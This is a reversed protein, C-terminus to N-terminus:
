SEETEAAEPAAPSATQDVTEVAPEPEDLAVDEFEVSKLIHDLAKRELIQTAIADGLGEKEVRARVRRVSEDSRAAMAELEVDVDEEEVKIEASDAIRALIFFEKLSRLTMEHANARVEAERAKIDNDSFGEQRLEGILRNITSKEQRSVLDPPLDFPTAAILADLVQRRIALKQQSEYRRKLAERVADRLEDPSDFGISALFEPNAEPMRLQKLDHVQVKVAVTQGRLAPDAVASGLRAEVERADGPSVGELAAGIGPIHGDQFRLEPQLRFQIEKVENLVSHDPRLFTLDATLYDGIKASGELKPVIQAYRELFRQLHADVDPERIAKIPRKVKLGGFEAVEFDPRVEVDMEFALPGDDPLVIAELDLKPQTIPNLNYDEDIQQLSAMLLSSKVQDSVQKRFRKVVLQRPARGPRFGPVQADRQFTGLSEEFQIEIESRPINVKLHKKCPGADQIQVDIALKRKPEQEASEEVPQDTLSVPDEQEIDGRSM